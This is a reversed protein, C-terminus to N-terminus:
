IDNSSFDRDEMPHRFMYTKNNEESFSGVKGDRGLTKIEYVDEVVKYIYDNGWPDKPVEDIIEVYKICKRGISPEKALAALGQEETPYFGCRRKFDILQTKFAQFQLRIEGAKGPCMHCDQTLSFYLIGLLFLQFFVLFTFNFLKVLFAGSKESKSEDVEQGQLETDWKSLSLFKWTLVPALCALVVFFYSIFQKNFLTHDIIESFSNGEELAYVVFGGYLLACLFVLFILLKTFISLNPM